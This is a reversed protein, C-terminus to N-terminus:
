FKLHNLMQILILQNARYCVPKSYWVNTRLPEAFVSYLTCVIEWWTQGLETTQDIHNKVYERQEETSMSSDMPEQEVKERM